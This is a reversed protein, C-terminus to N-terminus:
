CILCIIMVFEVILCILLFVEIGIVIMFIDFRLFVFIVDMFCIREDKFLMCDEILEVWDMLELVFFVFKVFRCLMLGFLVKIRSLLLCIVFLVIVVDVGLRLMIGNVVILCMLISCM